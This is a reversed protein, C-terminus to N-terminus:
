KQPSAVLDGELMERVFDQEVAYWGEHGDGFKLYCSGDDDVVDLVADYWNRGDAFYVEIQDNVRM